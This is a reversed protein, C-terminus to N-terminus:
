SVSGNVLLEQGTQILRGAHGPIDTSREQLRSTGDFDSASAFFAGTAMIRICENVLDSDHLGRSSEDCLIDWVDEMPYAKRYVRNTLLADVVDAIGVIQVELPIQSGRLGDPYGSGDLREHHHHIIDLVLPDLGLPQCIDRGIASHRQIEQFEDSTLKSSKLLVGDTVAVKGVDHLQGGIEVSRIRESNLGIAKALNIAYRAVRQNHGATYADKAKVARQLANIANDSTVYMM